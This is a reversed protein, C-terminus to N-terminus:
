GNLSAALIEIARHSTKIVADVTNSANHSGFINRTDNLLENSPSIPEVEFVDLAVSHVVGQAQAKVLASEDILPGRAVNVIRVGRKCNSLVSSDLMHRNSDTLACTFVIFDVENIRDPWVSHESGSSVISDVDAGPDYVIVDLDCANARRAFNRGIDGYGVLAVKKNALSIGSPKIWKGSRVSENIEFTHRALAILYGLAVDSVEGGFMAPTNSVPVNFKKFSEFDVNDVGVGWKVAARLKGKVGAEVVRSSAPDDGIIWGDYNPLQNQLQEETMVQTFEPVVVEWELESFLSEFKEVQNIMPPCTLLVKKM